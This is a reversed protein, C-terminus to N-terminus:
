DWISKIVEEFNLDNYKRKKLLTKVDDIKKLDLSDSYINVKNIIDNDIFIDFLLPKDNIIFKKQIQAKENKGFIWEKSTLNKYTQIEDDSTIHELIKANQYIDKFSKVLSDKLSQVTIFPNLDKLNVVRSKVSKIGKGVFKSIDPTLCQSLVSLDLDLMLTGHIMYKDEDELWAMGSFKKGKSLLDNRGKIQADIGEKRLAYLIIKMWTDLDKNKQSSIFTFNLNGLDHYVCGGGTFRRVPDIKNDKIFELDLESYINQNRGMVVCPKNQWLLFVLEDKSLNKYYSYERAINTYPNTSNLIVIKADM